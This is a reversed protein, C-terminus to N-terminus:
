DAQERLWDVLNRVTGVPDDDVREVHQAPAEDPVDDDTALDRTALQWALVGVLVAAALAAMRRWPGTPDPTPAEGRDDATPETPPPADADDELPLPRTAPGPETRGATLLALAEAADAPRDGPAEALLQGTLRALDPPTHEPLVPPREQAPPSGTLLEVLTAGLAWLDSATTAPGGAMREPAVYARTGMVLGTRTLGPADAAQAIGFDAIKVAGDPARLLNGPKIDRHLLGADHAAALGALVSTAVDAVRDPALPGENDLVDALSPGDVLETVLYPREGDDGVDYVTVVNPATLRAAARAERLFRERAGPDAALNDALLKVAVERDLIRDHARYVLGMGGVGLREGLSYRGDGVAAPRADTHAAVTPVGNAEAQTSTHASPDSM